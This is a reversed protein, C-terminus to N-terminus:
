KFKISNLVKEVDKQYAKIGEKEELIVYILALSNERIHFYLTQDFKIKEDDIQDQFDGKVAIWKNGNITVTERSKEDDL